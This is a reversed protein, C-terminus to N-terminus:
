GARRLQRLSALLILDRPDVDLRTGPRDFRYLTGSIPGRVNVAARGINELTVRSAPPTTPLPPKQAQRQQIRNRGCCAM